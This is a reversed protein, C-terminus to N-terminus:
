GSKALATAQADIWSELAALGASPAEPTKLESDGDDFDVGESKEANM